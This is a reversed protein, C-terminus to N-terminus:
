LLLYPRPFNALHARKVAKLVAEALISLKRSSLFLSSAQKRPASVGNWKRWICLFIRTWDASKRMLKEECLLAAGMVLGKEKTKPSWRVRLLLRSPLARFFCQPVVPLTPFKGLSPQPATLMLLKPGLIAFEKRELFSVM